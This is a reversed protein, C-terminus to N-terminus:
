LGNVDFSRTSGLTACFQSPLVDADFCEGFLVCRQTLHSRPLGCLAGFMERVCRLREGANKTRGARESGALDVFSLAASRPRPAPAVGPM